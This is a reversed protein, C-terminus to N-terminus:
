IILKIREHLRPQNPVPIFYDGTRTLVAKFNSDKNLLTALEKAISLTIDKEKIGLNKGIAGPDKGGHGADIAIVTKAYSTLSILFSLLGIQLHRLLKKSM